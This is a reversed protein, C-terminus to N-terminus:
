CKSLIILLLYYIFLEFNYEHDKNIVLEDFLGNLYPSPLENINSVREAKYVTKLDGTLVDILIQEFAYEGEGNVIADIFPYKKLFKKADNPTGLGGYIIKVNKNYNKIRNCLSNNINENWVFNSVGIIDSKKIKEFILDEDEHVYVWEYLEYNNKIVKNTLCHSWIVGTSYPLKVQNSFVPAIELFTIRKKFGVDRM